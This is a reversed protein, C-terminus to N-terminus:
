ADPDVDAGNPWRLQRRQRRSPVEVRARIFRLPAQKREAERVLPAAAKAVNAVHTAGKRESDYALQRESLRRGLKRIRRPKRM